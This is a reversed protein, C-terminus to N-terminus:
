KLNKTKVTVSPLAFCQLPRHHSQPPPRQPGVNGIVPNCNVAFRAIAIGTSQRTLGCTNLHCPSYKNSVVDSDNVLQAIRASAQTQVQASLFQCFPRYTKFQRTTCNCDLLSSATTPKTAGSTSCTSYVFVQRWSAASGRDPTRPPAASRLTLPRAPKPAAREFAM